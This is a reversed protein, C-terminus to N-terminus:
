AVMLEEAMMEVMLEKLELEEAEELLVDIVLEMHTEVELDKVPPQSGETLVRVTPHEEVVEVMQELNVIKQVEAVGV